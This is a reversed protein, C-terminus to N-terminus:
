GGLAYLAAYAEAEHMQEDSMDDPLELTVASEGQSVLIEEEDTEM